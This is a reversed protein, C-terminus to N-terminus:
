ARAAREGVGRAPQRSELARFGAEVVHSAAEVLTWGRAEALDRVKHYLSPLVHLPPMRKEGKPALRDLKPERRVALRGGEGDLAALTGLPGPVGQGDLAKAAATKPAAVLVKYQRGLLEADHAHYLDLPDGGDPMLRYAKEEVFIISVKTRNEKPGVHLSTLTLPIGALTTTQTKM